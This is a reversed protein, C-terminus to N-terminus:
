KEEGGKETPHDRWDLAQGCHQCYEPQLCAYKLEMEDGLYRNCVICYYENQKHEKVKYPKKPIQKELAKCGLAIVKFAPREGTLLLRELDNRAQIPTWKQDIKLAEEVTM